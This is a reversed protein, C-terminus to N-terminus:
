PQTITIRDIVGYGSFTIRGFLPDPENISATCVEALEGKGLLLVVKWDTNIVIRYTRLAPEKLPVLCDIVNDDKQSHFTAEENSILLYFPAFGESSRPEDGPYWDFYLPFAFDNEVEADFEITMGPVLTITDISTIGVQDYNKWKLDLYGGLITEPPVLELDDAVTPSEWVQWDVLGESFNDEFVIKAPPINTVTPASTESPSSTFTPLETITPEPTVSITLTPEIPTVTFELVSVAAETPPETPFFMDLWGFGYAIGFLSACVIVLIAVLFGVTVIRPRKRKPKKDNTPPAPPPSLPTPTPPLQKGCSACFKVGPRNPKGCHPCPNGGSSGGSAQPPRSPSRGSSILDEPKGMKSDAKQLVHGCFGCFKAGDRVSKGCKPCKNGM